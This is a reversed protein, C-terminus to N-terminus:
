KGANEKAYPNADGLNKRAKAALKQLRAVVKPNTDAVDNKESIDADLDFLQPKKIEFQFRRYWQLDKPFAPRPLMLKWKGSRVALLYTHKYYYFAEHLPDTKSGDLVSFANKGDIIRDSPLEVEALAAFTPFLDLSTVMQKVIKGKPLKGPWRMVCPVRHGGEFCTMKAGRLPLATGSQKNRNKNEPTRGADAKPFPKVYAWPGNDSTFVILTQDDINLEKLRKVIRGTQFDIEQICDGYPGYKSAGIFKKETYLPTHPMSHALYIFFPEKQHAEIFRIAEDTYRRTITKQDVPSEVIKKNRMLVSPKMDNSYPIGFYEDFGQAMPMLTPHKVVWKNLGQRSKDTGIAGRGSGALHWKGIAKTKYGTKKLLEAITIEETALITHFHKKGGLEKVRKPHRGTLVAARSPGCVPAASYYSTLKIGERAMQDIHPTKIKKSGFCGLDNYGQDDTYILIINPKRAKEFASANASVAFLLIVYLITALTSARFRRPEDKPTVQYEFHTSAHM